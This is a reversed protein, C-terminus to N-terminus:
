YPLHQLDNAPSVAHWLLLESDLDYLSLKIQGGNMSFQIHSEARIDRIASDCSVDFYRPSRPSITFELSRTKEFLLCAKM